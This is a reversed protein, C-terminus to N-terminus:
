QKGKSTSKSFLGSSAGASGSDKKSYKDYAGLAQGSSTAFGTILTTKAASRAQKASFRDLEAGYRLDRARESGEYLSTLASLEGEGIIDSIETQIGAATTVGGSAAGAARAKSALLGAQRRDEVAKRQSEAERQIALKDKQKARSELIKAKQKEQKSQGIAQLATSAIAIIAGAVAM